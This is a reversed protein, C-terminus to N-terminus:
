GNLIKYYKNKISKLVKLIDDFAVETKCKLYPM